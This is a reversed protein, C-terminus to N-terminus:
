NIVNSCFNANGKLCCSALEEYIAICTEHIVPSLLHPSIAASFKLDKYSNGTALCRLTVSLREEACLAGRVVTNKGRRPWVWDTTESVSCLRQVPL